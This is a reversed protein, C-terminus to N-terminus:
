SGKNGQIYQLFEEALSASSENAQPKMETSFDFEGDIGLDGLVDRFAQTKDLERFDEYVYEKSVKDKLQQEYLGESAILHSLAEAIQGMNPEVGEVKPAAESSWQDSIAAKAFSVAQALKNKRTVYIVHDFTMMSFVDIKKQLLQVHQEIHMNLSFIGTGGVTHSAVFNVYDEIRVEPTGKYRSYAEIYRLNMWERCEGIVGQKNLVDCFLSSGSRPTSLILFKKHSNDFPVTEQGDLRKMTDLLREETTKM